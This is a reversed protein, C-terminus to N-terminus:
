TTFKGNKLYESILRLRIEEFATTRTRIGALRQLRSPVPTRESQIVQEIAWRLRRELFEDASEKSNELTSRCRPLHHLHKEFLDTADLERGIAAASVRVPKGPGSKMSTACKTILASMDIDRGGWDVRPRRKTSTVPLLEALKHLWERDNRYLWYYNAGKARHNSQRQELYAVRRLNLQRKSRLFVRRLRIEPAERLIRYVSSPSVSCATAIAAASAGLRAMSQIQANVTSTLVRPYQHVTTGQQIAKEKVTQVSLGTLAASEHLSHQGSPLEILNLGRDTILSDPLHEPLLPAGSLVLPSVLQSLEIDLTLMLILYKLPHHTARQKRLLRMIWEPVDANQAALHRFEGAGPFLEFQKAIVSALSKLKLRGDYLGKRACGDLLRHRLLEPAIPGFNTDLVLLSLKALDALATVVRPSLIPFSSNEGIQGDDPLYPLSAHLGSWRADVVHLAQASHHPCVWVGALQHVRHWYAQGYTAEDSRLCTECYRVRQFKGLTSATVGLRMNLSASTGFVMQEAAIKFQVDSLFPRFYALITHNYLLTEATCPPDAGFLSVLEGIGCPFATARAFRPLHHETWGIAAFNSHGALRCYRSMVSHLTEDPFPRPFFGM